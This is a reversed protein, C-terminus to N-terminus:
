FLILASALFAHSACVKEWRGGPTCLTEMAGLPMNALQYNGLTTPPHCEVMVESHSLVHMLCLQRHVTSGAQNTGPKHTLFM